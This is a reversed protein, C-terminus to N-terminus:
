QLPCTKKGWLLWRSLWGPTMVGSRGWNEESGHRAIYSNRQTNNHTTTYDDADKQGVHVAKKEGEVNAKYKKNKRTSEAIIIKM